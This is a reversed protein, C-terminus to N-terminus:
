EWGTCIVGRLLYCAVPLFPSLCTKWYSEEITARGETEDMRDDDPRAILRADESLDLVPNQVVHM